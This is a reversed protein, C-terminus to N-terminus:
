QAIVVREGGAGMGEEPVSGSRLPARIMFRRGLAVRRVKRVAAGAAPEPKPGLVVFAASTERRGQGFDLEPVPPHRPPPTKAEEVPAPTPIRAVRKQADPPTAVADEGSVLRSAPSSPQRDWDPAVSPGNVGREASAM